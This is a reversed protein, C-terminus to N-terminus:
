QSIKALLVPDVPLGLNVRTEIGSAELGSIKGTQMAALSKALIEQKSMPEGMSKVLAGDAAPKENMSVTSARGRGANALTEVREQLSKVLAGTEELAKGQAAITANATKIAHAQGALLDAATGLAKMVQESHSQAHLEVTQLREGAAALQETFSKILATGDFAEVETGDELQLSFSKALPKEGKNGAGEEDEDEDEPNGGGEDNAGAANDVGDAGQNGASGDGATAGEKGEGAGEGDAGGAAAGDAAAAAIKKDDAAGDADAALAKNLDGIENLRNTLAEFSM